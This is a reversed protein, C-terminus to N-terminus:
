DVPDSLSTGPLVRAAFQESLQRTLTTTLHHRDRYLLVDGYTTPCVAGPCVLQSADVYSAGVSRAAAREVDQLRRPVVETRPQSCAAADQLHASLCTPVNRAFEPTDGLIVVDTLPTLRGAFAALGEGWRTLGVSPQRANGQHNALIVLSPPQEAIRRLSADRWQECETYRRHLKLQDVVVDATPCASKTLNLLQWGRSSALREVAPFWQAAHSDGMLVVRTASAEVGYLCRGSETGGYGVHCGDAYTAPLDAGVAALSPQLNVPVFADVANPAVPLALSAAPRGADLRPLPAVVLAVMVVAATVLAGAAYTRVRGALRPAQRFREEVHRHTLAALAVAAAVRLTRVWGPLPVIRDAAPIVLLPWHWLYLSYSWDGVRQLPRLALLRAPGGPSGAALPGGPHGLGSAGTVGAALVLVTGGVPLTAAWGPFRTADTYTLATGVILALGLWGVWGSRSAWLGTRTGLGADRQLAFSLLGGAALEWARTPLSFFAIPQFPGTLAISLALSGAAVLGFTWPLAHRWRSTARAALLILLPWLLYFQEEVALSWYHLLPSPSPDALYDVSSFAFWLNAVYLATFRGDQAVGPVTLPPLLLRAALLTVVLVLASAPLLRRLRRAWFQGLRVRGTAQVERLLLGTILFGSIVFFVDVGIYGGPLWSLGAHYLVVLM